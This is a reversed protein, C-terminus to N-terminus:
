HLEDNLLRGLLLKIAEQLPVAPDPVSDHIPIPPLEVLWLVMRGVVTFDNEEYEVALAAERHHSLPAGWLVGVHQGHTPNALSLAHFLGRTPLGELLRAHGHTDLINRSYVTGPYAEFPPVQLSPVEDDLASNLAPPSRGRIPLLYRFDAEDFERSPDGGPPHAGRPKQPNQFICSEDVGM